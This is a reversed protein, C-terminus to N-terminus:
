ELTISRVRFIILCILFHLLMLLVKAIIHVLVFDFSSLDPVPPRMFKFDEFILVFVIFIVRTFHDTLSKNIFHWRSIWFIIFKGPLTEIFEPLLTILSYSPIWLFESFILIVFM